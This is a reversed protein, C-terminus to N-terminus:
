TFRPDEFNGSVHLVFVLKQEKKAKAAADSPTDLFEVSTGHSGCTAPKAPLTPLISKAPKAPAPNPEGAAAWGLLPTLALGAATTLVFRRM